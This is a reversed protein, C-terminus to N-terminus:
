KWNEEDVRGFTEEVGADFEQAEAQSWVGWFSDLRGGIPQPEVETTLGLGKRMLWTVVQNVSWNRQRGLEEIAAELEPDVSRITM